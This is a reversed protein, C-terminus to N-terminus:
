ELVTVSVAESVLTQVDVAANTNRLPVFEGTSLRAHILYYDELTFNTFRSNEMALAVGKEDAGLRVSQGGPFAGGYCKELTEYVSDALGKVASTIVAPSRDSQDVDVGIMAAGAAEAAAMVSDGVTGGYAFICEVGNTYWSGALNQAEPTATFGGTYHYMVECTVGREIAAYDVGQLFGGGYAIVAPVAMGGIFGLKTYGEKVAAYGALFGAQEEAYFISYVNPELAYTAYDATHPEGDLLVFCTDAYAYQAEYVAAEFLMGPCIVVKAGAEVAAAIAKVYAADNQEEAQYYQYSLDHQAAYKQLGQWAAQNFGQDEIGFTDTILALEYQQAEAAPAADTDTGTADPTDATIDQQGCAAALLLAGALLALLLKKM